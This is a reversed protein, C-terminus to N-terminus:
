GAKAIVSRMEDPGFARLTTSRLNGQAAISLLAATATEDDPAEVITVLDHPGVTWYVDKFTVGHAAKAAKAAEYRDVTDKFNAVGKDTWNILSVYTAM